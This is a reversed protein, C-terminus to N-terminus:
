LKGEQQTGLQSVFLLEKGIELIQVVITKEWREEAMKPGQRITNMVELIFGDLKLRGQLRKEQM